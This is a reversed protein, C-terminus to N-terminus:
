YGYSVTGGGPLSIYGASNDSNYNGASFRTSWFNDGGGSGVGTAAGGGQQAARAAAFLNGVPVPNGEYGANGKADLWYRGPLVQTHALYSLVQVEQATQERGNIFVGTNGGSADPALPGLEHGPYMFGAAPQGVAGYLGSKSDYWYNGPQPKVRYLKELTEIDQASLANGNIVVRAAIQKGTAMPQSANTAPQSASTPAQGVPQSAASLSQGVLQPQSRGGVLAIVGVIALVLVVAAGIGIGIGLILKNKMIISGEANAGRRIAL